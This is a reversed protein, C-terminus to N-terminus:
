NNRGERGSRFSEPTLMQMGQAGRPRLSSAIGIPAPGSGGGGGSSGTTGAGSAGGAGAEARRSRYDRPVSLQPTWTPLEKESRIAFAPPPARGVSRGQMAALRYEMVQSRIAASIAVEFERPLGLDVCMSRAFLEPSNTPNNIDWEFQDRLSIAGVNLSLRIVRLDEATERYLRLPAYHECSARIAAAIIRKCGEQLQMDACMAFAFDEPTMQKETQEQHSLLSPLKFFFFFLLLFARVM